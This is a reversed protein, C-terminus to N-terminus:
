HTLPVTVFLTNRFTPLDLIVTVTQYSIENKEEENGIYTLHGLAPEHCRQNGNFEGSLIFVQRYSELMNTKARVATYRILGSGSLAM